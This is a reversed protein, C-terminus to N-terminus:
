ICMRVDTESAVAVIEQGQYDDSISGRRSYGHAAGDFDGIQFDIALSGDCENGLQEHM